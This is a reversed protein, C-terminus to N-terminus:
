LSELDNVAEQAKEQIRKIDNNANDLYERICDVFEDLENNYQEVDENYQDIEWQDSFQYPKYPKTPEDCDHSPYGLFSPLNSGGVVYASGGSPLLVAALAVAIGITRM